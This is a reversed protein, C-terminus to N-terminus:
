FAIYELQAAGHEQRPEAPSCLAQYEHLAWILAKRKEKFSVFDAVDCFEHASQAIKKLLTTESQRRRDLYEYSKIIQAADALEHLAKHHIEELERYEQQLERFKM